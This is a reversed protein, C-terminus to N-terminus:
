SGRLARGLPASETGSLMLVPGGDQPLTMTSAIVTGIIARRDTANM